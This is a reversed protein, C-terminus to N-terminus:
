GGVKSNKLANEVAKKPNIMLDMSSVIVLPPKGLYLLLANLYVMVDKSHNEEILCDPIVMHLQGSDDKFSLAMASKSEESSLLELNNEEFGYALLNIFDESLYDFRFRGKYFSDLELEEVGYGSFRDDFIDSLILAKKGKSLLLCLDETSFREPHNIVVYDYTVDALSLGKACSIQFPSITQAMKKYHHLVRNPLIKGGYRYSNQLRKGESPLYWLDLVRKKVLEAMQIGDDDITYPLFCCYAMAAIMPSAFGKKERERALSKYLSYWYDNEFNDVPENVSEYTLLAEVLTSSAKEKMAMFESYQQFEEYSVEEKEKLNRKLTTFPLTNEHFPNTFMDRLNTFDENVTALYMKIDSIYEREQERFSYDSFIHKIFDNNERDCKKDQIILKKYEDLFKLADWAKRPGEESYLILGFLDESAKTKENYEKLAEQYNSLNTIFDPLDRKDRLVNKLKKRGRMRIFINHNKAEKLYDDLPEDLKSLDSVYECIIEFLRDKRDKLLTLSMAMQMAKPDKSIEFFDDSFGNYELIVTMKELASVLNEISKIDGFGWDQCKAFGMKTQLTDIDNWTKNLLKRMAQFKEPSGYARLSNLPNNTILGHNIYIAKRFFAMFKKDKEFDSKNYCTVSVPVSNTCLSHYKSFKNVGTLLDEGTKLFGPTKEKISREFEDSYNQCNNKYIQQIEGLQSMPVTLIRRAESLLNYEDEGFYHDPILFNYKTKKLNKSLSQVSEENEKGFLVTKGEEIRKRLFYHVMMEKLKSNSSKVYVVKENELKEYVRRFPMYVCKEIHYGVDYSVDSADMRRIPENSPTLNRWRLFDYLVADTLSVKEDFNLDESQKTKLIVEKLESYDIFGRDILSKAGKKKELADVVMRNLTPSGKAKSLKVIGFKDKKLQVKLSLLYGSVDKNQIHLFNLQLEKGVLSNIDTSNGNILFFEGEGINHIILAETGSTLFVEKKEMMLLYLYYPDVDISFEWPFSAQGNLIEIRKEQENLLYSLKDM